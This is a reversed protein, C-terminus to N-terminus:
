NNDNNPTDEREDVGSITYFYILFIYNSTTPPPLRSKFPPLVIVFLLYNRLHKHASSASSATPFPSIHCYQLVFEFDTAIIHIHLYSCM